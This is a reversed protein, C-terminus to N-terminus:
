HGLEPLPDSFKRARPPIPITLVRVAAALVTGDSLLALPFFSRAVNMAAPRSSIAPESCDTGPGAYLNAPSQPDVLLSLVETNPLGPVVQFSAGADISKM